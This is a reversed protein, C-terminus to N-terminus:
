RARETDEVSQEAIKNEKRTQNKPDEAWAGARRMIELINVQCTRLNKKLVENYGAKKFSHAPLLTQKLVVIDHFLKVHVKGEACSFELKATANQNLLIVFRNLYSAILEQM